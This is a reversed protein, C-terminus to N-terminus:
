RDKRTIIVAKTGALPKIEHQPEPPRWNLLGKLRARIADPEYPDANRAAWKAWYGALADAEDEVPQGTVVGLPTAGRISGAPRSAHDTDPISNWHLRLHAAEHLFVSFRAWAELNPTVYLVAAGASKIACGLAGEFPPRLHRVEVPRGALHAAVRTVLDDPM